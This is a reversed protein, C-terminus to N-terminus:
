LSKTRKIIEKLAAETNPMRRFARVAPRFFPRAPVHGIVVPVKKGTYGKKSLLGAILGQKVKKVLKHGFEVMEAYFAIKRDIAVFVAPMGDIKRKLPKAVISKWLPGYGKKKGQLKNPRLNVPSAGAIRYRLENADLLLAREIKPGAIEVLHRKVNADLTGLQGELVRNYKPM